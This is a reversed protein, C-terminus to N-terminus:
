SGDIDSVPDSRGDEIIGHDVQWAHTSEDPGANLINRVAAQLEQAVAMGRVSIDIVEDDRAPTPTRGGAITCSSLGRARALAIAAYADEVCSINDRAIKEIDDQTPGTYQSLNDITLSWSM